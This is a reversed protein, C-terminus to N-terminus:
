LFPHPALEPPWIAMRIIVEDGHQLSRPPDARTVLKIGVVRYGHGCAGEDGMKPLLHVPITGLVFIRDQEDDAFPGRRNGPDFLRLLGLRELLRSRRSQSSSS